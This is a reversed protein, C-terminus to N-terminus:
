SSPTPLYPNRYCSTLLTGDQEQHIDTFSGGAKEPFGSSAASVRLSLKRGSVQRQQDTDRTHSQWVWSHCWPCSYLLLTLTHQSSHGLRSCSSVQDPLHGAVSIASKPLFNLFPHWSGRCSLIQKWPRLKNAPITTEPPFCLLLKVENVPKTHKKVDKELWLSQNCHVNFLPLLLFLNRQSCKFFYGWQIGGQQTFRFINCQIFCFLCCSNKSM